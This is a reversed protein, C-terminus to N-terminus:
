TSSVSPIGPLHQDTWIKQYSARFTWPFTTAANESVYPQNSESKRLLEWSAGMNKRRLQFIGCPAFPGVDGIPCRLLTSVFAVTAAHSYCCITKGEFAESQELQIAFKAIRAMYDEPYKEEPRGNHENFCDPTATPHYISKYDTDIHPFYAFRDAPSPLVDPTFHTEALGEEIQIKIGLSDALPKATQIVRLYPSVLLMDVESELEKVFFDATERAQKHGLLSLPPDTPNNGLAKSQEKWEPNAYDFRDGHRIQSDPIYLHRM